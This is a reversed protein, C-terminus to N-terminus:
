SKVDLVHQYCGSWSIVHCPVEHNRAAQIWEDRRRSGLSAPLVIQRPAYYGFVAEPSDYFANTPILIDVPLPNAHLVPFRNDTLMVVLLDGFVIMNDTRQICRDAYGEPLPAIGDLHWLHITSEVGDIVNQYTTSDEPLTLLYSRNASAIFHVATEKTRHYVLVQSPTGAPRYAYIESGIAFLFATIVAFRFVRQRLRKFGFAVILFLTLYMFFVTATEPWFLLTSGPLSGVFATWGNMQQLVTGLLWVLLGRLPVFAFFLLTLILIAYALPVVFVNAIIGYVPILHFTHCVLPLTGIQACLPVLFFAFTAKLFRNRAFFHPVPIVQLGWIIFFVSLFSLQFGLDFIATPYLVMIVFAAWLLNDLSIVDRGFLHAMQLLSFMVAARILSLPAGALLTYSWILLLSICVTLLKSGKNQSRFLRFFLNLLTFLIGLHLGSLALVHSAGAAQYSQRLEKSLLSKDGLTMASLVALEDNSFYRSMESVLNSRLRRLFATFSPEAHSESPFAWSYAYLVGSIGLHRLYESYDKEGPNRVFSRRMRGKAVFPTEVSLKGLDSFRHLTDKQFVVRVKCSSHVGNLIKAEVTVYNGADVPNDLALMDFCVEDDEWKQEVRSQSISFLSSGTLMLSVSVTLYFSIRGVRSAYHRYCFYAAGLFVLLSLLLLPIHGFCFTRFHESVFIGAAMSLVLLLVASNYKM